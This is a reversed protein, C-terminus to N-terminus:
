GAREATRVPRHFGQKAVVGGFPGVGMVVSRYTRLTISAASENGGYDDDDDTEHILVGSSV